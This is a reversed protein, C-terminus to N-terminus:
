NGRHILIQCILQSVNAQQYIRIYSPITSNGCISRCVQTLLYCDLTQGTNRGNSSTCNKFSKFPMRQESGSLQRGPDLYRGRYKFHCRVNTSYAHRGRLRSRDSDMHPGKRLNAELIFDSGVNM